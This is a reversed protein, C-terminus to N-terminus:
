HGLEYYDHWHSYNQGSVYEDYQIVKYGDIPDYYSVVKQGGVVGCGIMVMMHGTPGPTGTDDHWQWSFVIPQQKQVIQSKIKSWSLPAFYTRKPKNLGYCEFFTKYGNLHTCWLTPWGPQNCPLLNFDPPPPDCDCALYHFKLRALGCQEVSYGYHDLVMEACAAWCWQSADQARFELDLENLQAELRPIGLSGLIIVTLFHAKRLRM